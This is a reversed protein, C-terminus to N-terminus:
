KELEEIQKKAVSKSPLKKIDTVPLVNPPTSRNSCIDGLVVRQKVAEGNSRGASSLSSESRLM